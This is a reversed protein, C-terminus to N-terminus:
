QHPFARASDVKLILLSYYISLKPILYATSMCRPHSYHAMQRDDHVKTSNSSKNYSSPVIQTIKPRICLQSSKYHLRPDNSSRRSKTVVPLKALAHSSSSARNSNSWIIIITNIPSNARTIAARRRSRWRRRSITRTSFTGKSCQRRRRTKWTSRTKKWQKPTKGSKTTLTTRTLITM